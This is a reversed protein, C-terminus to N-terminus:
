RSHGAFTALTVTAVDLNTVTTLPDHRIQM